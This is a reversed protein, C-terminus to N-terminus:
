LLSNIGHRLRSPKVFPAYRIIVQGDKNVLFKTFNWKISTSGLIGRAANKLFNFLPEADPGNVNIKEMLPFTLGYNIECFQNIQEPNGPEQGAFQNCPFALIVLGKNGFDKHLAELDKYQSTFGCRSATNVVLIVKGKLTALDLNENHLTKVTFDYISPKM